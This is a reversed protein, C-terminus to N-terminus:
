PTIHPMAYPLEGSTAASAQRGRAAPTGGDGILEARGGGTDAPEAALVPADERDPHSVPAPGAAAQAQQWRAYLERDAIPALEPLAARVGDAPTRLDYYRTDPAGPLSDRTPTAGPELVLVGVPVEPQGLQARLTNFEGSMRRLEAAQERTAAIYVVPPSAEARAAPAAPVPPSAAQQEGVSTTGDRGLQWAGIGAAATLALVAGAAVTIFRTRHRKPAVAIPATQITM